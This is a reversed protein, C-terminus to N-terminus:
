GYFLAITHSGAGLSLRSRYIRRNETGVGNATETMTVQLMPTAPDSMAVSTIDRDVVVYIYDGDTPIVANITGPRPADTDTFTGPTATVNANSSYFLLLDDEVRNITVVIDQTTVVNHDATQGTPRYTVAVTIRHTGPQNSPPNILGGPISININQRATTSFPQGDAVNVTWGTPIGTIAGYEYVFGGDNTANRVGNFRIETLQQNHTLNIDENQFGGATGAHFTGGPFTLVPGSVSFNGEVAYGDTNTDSYSGPDAITLEKLTNNATYTINGGAAFNVTQGPSEPEINDQGSFAWTGFTAVNAHSGATVYSYDGNTDVQILSNETPATNGPQSVVTDVVNAVVTTAGAATIGTLHVSGTNAFNITAAGPVETGGINRFNITHGAGTPATGTLIGADTLEFTVRGTVSDGQNMFTLGADIPLNVPNGDGDRGAIARERDSVRVFGTVAFNVPATFNAAAGSNNYYLSNNPDQTDIVYDGAPVNNLTTGTFVLTSSAGVEGVRVWTTDPFPGSETVSQVAGSINIYQVGMNSVIAIHGPQVPLANAGLKVARSQLLTNLELATVGTALTPTGSSDIIAPNALADIATRIVTENPLRNVNTSGAAPIDRASALIEVATANNAGSYFTTVIDANGLGTRDPLSQLGSLDVNATVTTLNTNTTDQVATFDVNGDGVNTFDIESRGETRTGDTTVFDITHAGGVSPLTVTAALQGGGGLPSFSVGGVATTNVFNLATDSNASLGVVGNVSIPRQTNAGPAPALEWRGGGQNDHDWLLVQSETSSGSPLLTITEDTSQNTTFSQVTEGAFGLAVDITANGVNASTHSQVFETTAVTNNNSTSPIDALIEPATAFTKLGAIAQNGTTRVFTADFGTLVVAIDEGDRTVFTITDTAGDFTGSVIEDGHPITILGGVNTATGGDISQQLQVTTTDNVNNNIVATLVPAFGQAGAPVEFTDPDPNAGAPNDYTVTITTPQGTVPTAGTVSAIGIGQFGRQVRFTMPDPVTGGSPNTFTVTVTTDGANTDGDPIIAGTVTNIGVGQFGQIGQAGTPLMFTLVGNTGIAPNNTTITITVPDGPGQMAANDTINEISFGDSGPPVLFTQDAPMTNGSPDTLTVTITTNESVVPAAGTITNIGIGQFGQEGSLEATRAWATTYEYLDVQTDDDANTFTRIFIDGDIAAPVQATPANEGFFIRNGRARATGSSNLIALSVESNPYNGNSATHTVNLILYGTNSSDVSTVQYIGYNDSSAISVDTLKIDTGDMFRSFPVANNGPMENTGTNDINNFVIQNIGAFTNELGSVFRYFIRGVAPTAASSDFTYYFGLKTPDAIGTSAFLQAISDITFNKTSNDLADIGTLRDLATVDTDNSYTRQRAM